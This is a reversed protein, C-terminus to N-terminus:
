KIAPIVLGMPDSIIFILADGSLWYYIGLFISIFFCWLIGGLVNPIAWAVTEALLTVPSTLQDKFVDEHEKPFFIVRFKDLVSIILPPAVFWFLWLFPQGDPIAHQLDFFNYINTFVSIFIASYIIGLFIHLYNM